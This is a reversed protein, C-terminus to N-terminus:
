TRGVAPDPDGEVRALFEMAGEVGGIIPVPKRLGIEVREAARRQRGLADVLGDAVLTYSEQADEM